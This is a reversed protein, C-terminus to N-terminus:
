TRFEEIQELGMIIFTEWSLVVCFILIFMM